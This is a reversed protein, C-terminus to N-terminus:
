WTLLKGHHSEPRRRHYGVVTEYCGEGNEDKADGNADLCCAGSNILHLFVVARKQLAKLTM